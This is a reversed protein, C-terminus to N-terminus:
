EGRKKRAGAPEDAEREARADTPGEAKTEGAAPAPASIVADGARVALDVEARTMGETAEGTGILHGEECKVGGMIRPRTLRIEFKGQKDNSKEM